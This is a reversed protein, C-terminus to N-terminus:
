RRQQMLQNVKGEAEELSKKANLKGALVSEIMESFVNEIMSNDIQPWTRATLAQKAFVGFTPDNLYQNILGRLAPPKGTINLYANSNQPNATLFLIFDQAIQWNPTKSSAALGWYNAYNVEQVATQPQLMPMVRFNLFPNKEKLFAIQHSYNFMMATEGAAFSDVSYALSENWTYNPSSPNAFNTYFNLAELGEPSDFSARSFDDEVMKTGSQLMLLNLLDTARNISKNSGGIAAAPKQIRGQKDITRLKPILAEFESWNKPPVAIGKQDFIDQNYFLALTDIYLPLAFVIGDPAFDQEVVSPFINRLNSIPMKEPSFPAMKNYHEPLWTNHVMFLDPPNTGALANVLDNEYNTPNLQRYNIEVKPHITKYAATVQEMAAGSDFVGWFNLEGSFEKEATRSGFFFLAVIGGVVALSGLILLVQNRTLGM